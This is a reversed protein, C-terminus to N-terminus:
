GGGILDKLAGDLGKQIIQDPRLLQKGVSEILMKEDLKVSPDAFSGKVRFPLPTIEDLNLMLKSLDSGAAGLTETAVAGLPLYTVLDMTRDAINVSGSSSVSFEGLPVTYKPYQAIGNEVTVTMSDLKRGVVKPGSRLEPLLLNGLLSEGAQVQATGPDFFMTANLKHLDGDLPYRVNSIKLVAPDESASKTIGGIVPVSRFLSKTFAPSLEKLTFSIPETSVFVGDRIVGALDGTARESSLEATVSGSTASAERLKLTVYALPGLAEAAMDKRGILADVFLTPVKRLLIDASVKATDTTVIGQADRFGDLTGWLAIGKMGEANAPKGDILANGRLELQGNPKNYLDLGLDTVRMQHAPGPIPAADKTAGPLMRQAKLSLAPSSVAMNLAFVDPKLPGVAPITAVQAKPRSLRLKSVDLQVQSPADIALGMSAPLLVSGMAPTITWALNFPQAEIADQNLAIKVPKVTKLRNSALTLTGTVSAPSSVLDEKGAPGDIGPPPVLEFAGDVDVQVGVFPGLAEVASIKTDPMAIHLFGDALASPVDKIGINLEFPGNPKSKAITAFGDIRLTSANSPSQAQQQVGDVAASMALTARQKSEETIAAAPMNLKIDVGRLDVTETRQGNSAAVQMTLNSTTAVVGDKISLDFTGAPLSVKSTPSDASERSSLVVSSPTYRIAAALSKSMGAVSLDETPVRASLVRVEHSGIQVISFADGTRTEIDDAFHRLPTYNAITLGPENIVVANDALHLEGKMMGRPTGGVSGSSDIVVRTAPLGFVGVASEEPTLSLKVTVRDGFGQLVDLAFTDALHPRLVDFALQEISVSGTVKASSVKGISGDSTLLDTLKLETNILSPRANKLALAGDVDISVGDSLKTTHVSVTTPQLAFPLPQVPERQSVTENQVLQMTGAIQGLTLKVDASTDALSMLRSGDPQSAFRVKDVELALDVSGASTLDLGTDGLMARLASSLRKVRMHSGKAVAISIPQQSQGQSLGTLQVNIDSAVNDSAVSVQVPTPTDAQPAQAKLSMSIVPGIDRAANLGRPALFPELIATNLGNLAVEGSILMDIPSNVKGSANVVHPAQVNLTLTGANVNDKKVNTGGTVSLGDALGSTTARVNMAAVDYTGAQTGEGILKLAFADVQTTMDLVLGALDPKGEKAPVSFTNITLTARPPSSLQALNPDILPKGTSQEIWEILEASAVSATAPETLEIGSASRKIKADLSANPANVTAVGMGDVADGTYQIKANITEGVAAVVLGDTGALTDAWIARVSNLDISGVYTAGFPDISKSTPMLDTSRVDITITGSSPASTEKFTGALDVVTENASLTVTGTLETTATRHTGTDSPREVNLVLDKVEITGAIALPLDIPGSPSPKAPPSKPVLGTQGPKMIRDISSTGDAHYSVTADGKVTVTGLNVSKALWGRALSLLGADIHVSADAVRTGDPENLVVHEVRIPGFWSLSVSGVEASGNIKAGLASAVKSKVIGSAITPVLALVVLGVILVACLVGLVIKTRRKLKRM